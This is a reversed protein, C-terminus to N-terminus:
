YIASAVNQSSVTVLYLAPAVATLTAVPIATYWTGSVAVSQTFNGSKFSSATLVLSADQLQGITAYDNAASGDAAGTHKFGGMPLNATPVGQGDRTICKALGNNAIDNFEADMRDARIKIGAAADSVWNYLRNWGGSGNFAM